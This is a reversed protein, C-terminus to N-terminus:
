VYNYIALFHCLAALVIFVHFIEHFGFRGPLPDPKKMAYILAGATYLVGGALLLSFLEGPMADVIRNIPIIVLWGMTVYIMTSVSRPASLFFFKFFVGLLVLSWQAAIMGWRWYGDLYMYSLPTYTGAIMFFIALHDLKRLRSNGNEEKKLAHYLSSAAFLFILSFGYVMATVLTARDARFQVALLATGCLSLLLATFHTYFSAPERITIGAM